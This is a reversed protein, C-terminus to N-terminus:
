DEVHFTYAPCSEICEKRTRHYGTVGNDGGIRIIWGKEEYIVMGLFKDKKKVFVPVYDAIDNLRITNSEETIVQKM